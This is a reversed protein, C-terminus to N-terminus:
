GLAAQDGVRVEGPVLVNALVGFCVDDNVRTIAKLLLPDADIGRQTMTVMVCRPMPQVIELQVTEGLLLRAGVWQEEIHGVQEPTDLLINSRLRAPEVARGRVQNLLALASTTVLHIPGDDFHTVGADRKVRVTKGFQNSLALACAESDAPLEHGNPFRIFPQEGEYRASLHLLGEMRRFRQSTKGSGLRGDQDEVAWLRDGVVGREEFQAVQLAEGILSKVPYRQLAHVSGVHVHPM